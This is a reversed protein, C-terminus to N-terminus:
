QESRHFLFYSRKGSAMFYMFATKDLEKSILGHIVFDSFSAKHGRSTFLCTARTFQCINGITLKRLYEIDRSTVLINFVTDWIGPLLM